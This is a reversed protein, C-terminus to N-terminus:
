LLNFFSINNNHKHKKNKNKLDICPPIEFVHNVKNDYTIKIVDQIYFGRHQM